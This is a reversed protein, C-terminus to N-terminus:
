QSKTTATFGVHRVIPYATITIKVIGCVIVINMKKVKYINFVSNKLFLAM